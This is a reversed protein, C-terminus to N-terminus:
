FQYVTFFAKLHAYFAIDLDVLLKTFATLNTDVEAGLMCNGLGAFHIGTAIRRSGEALIVLTSSTSDAGNNTRFYRYLNVMALTRMVPLAAMPSAAM